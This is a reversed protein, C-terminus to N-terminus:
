EPNESRSATIRNLISRGTTIKNDSVTDENTEEEKLTLIKLLLNREKLQYVKLNVLRGAKKKKIIASAIVSIKEGSKVLSRIKSEGFIDKLSDVIDTISLATTHTHDHFKELFESNKVM